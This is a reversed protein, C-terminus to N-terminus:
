SGGLVKITARLSEISETAEDIDANVKDIRRRLEELESIGETIRNHYNVIESHMTEIALKNAEM